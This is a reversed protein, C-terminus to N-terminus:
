KYIRMRVVTKTCGLSVFVLTMFNYLAKVLISYCSRNSDLFFICIDLFLPLFIRMRTYIGVFFLNCFTLFEGM